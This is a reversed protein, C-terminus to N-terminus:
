GRRAKKSDPSENRKHQAAMLKRAEKREQKERKERAEQMEKELKRYRKALYTPDSAMARSDVTSLSQESAYPDYRANALRIEESTISREDDRKKKDMNIIITQDAKLSKGKSKEDKQEKERKARIEDSRCDEPKHTRWAVPDCQGGTKRHCWYFTKEGSKTKRVKTAKKDV